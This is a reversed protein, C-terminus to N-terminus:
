ANHTLVLVLNTAWGLGAFIVLPVQWRFARERDRDKASEVRSIYVTALEERPMYRNDLEYILTTFRDGLRSQLQALERTADRMADEVATLRWDSERRIGRRREIPSDVETVHEAAEERSM